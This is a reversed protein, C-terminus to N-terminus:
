VGIRGVPAPASVPVRSIVVADGRSARLTRAAHGLNVAVTIRRFSDECVAVRGRPVDGYAVTFPVHLTRGTCRLEVTDGLTIGAAELDARCVNLSLNGFHDVTRIEGHVHDDDVEPDRLSVTVLDGVPVPPGVREIPVGAALHAAVPSFLDRSRFTRSPTQLWLEPETLEYAATAGGLASWALSTVGNDPAVLMSGSATQIAVARAAETRFPDVLALHVAPPLYPVAAALIGAGHEIDQPAVQHCVDLVRVDPASLAIVGRCVGVTADDLGFDSLFTVWGSGAM